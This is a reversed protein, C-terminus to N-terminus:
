GNIVFIHEAPEAAQITHTQQAVYATLAVGSALALRRHQSLLRAAAGMATRM